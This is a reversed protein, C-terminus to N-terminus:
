ASASATRHLRYVRWGYGAAQAEIAAPIGSVVVNCGLTPKEATGGTIALLFVRIKRTALLPRLWGLHKKQFRGLILGGYSAVLEAANDYDPAVDLEAYRLGAGHFRQLDELNGQFAKTGVLKTPLAFTRGGARQTFALAEEAKRAVDIRARPSAFSQWAQAQASLQTLNSM